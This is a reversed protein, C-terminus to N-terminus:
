IMKLIANVREKFIYKKENPLGRYQIEHEELESNDVLTKHSSLLINKEDLLKEIAKIKNMLFEMEIEDGKKKDLISREEIFSMYECVNNYMKDYKSYNTIEDFLSRAHIATAHHRGVEAAIKTLTAPVFRIAVKFYVARCFVYHTERNRSRIDIGNYDNIYEILKTLVIENKTPTM